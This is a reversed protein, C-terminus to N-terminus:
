WYLNPPHHFCIHSSAFQSCDCRSEHQIPHHTDYASEGTEKSKSEKSMDAQIIYGNGESSSIYFDVTSIKSRRSPGCMKRLDPTLNNASSISYLIRLVDLIGGRGKEQSHHM